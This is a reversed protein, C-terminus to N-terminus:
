PSEGIRWGKETKIFPLGDPYSTHEKGEEDVWVITCSMNLAPAHGPRPTGTSILRVQRAAGGVVDKMLVNMDKDKLMIATAPTLVAELAKRDRKELAKYFAEALPRLERSLLIGEIERDTFQQALYQRTSALVSKTTDDTADKEMGAFLDDWQKRTKALSEGTPEKQSVLDLGVMTVAVKVLQMGALTRMSLTDRGDKAAALSETVATKAAALARGPDVPITLRRRNEPDDQPMAFTVLYQAAGLRLTMSPAYQAYAELLDALLPGDQLGAAKCQRYVIHMLLDGMLSTVHCVQQETLMPLTASPKGKLLSEPVASGHKKLVGALASVFGEGGPAEVTAVQQLTPLLTTALEVPKPTPPLPVYKPNVEMGAPMNPIPTAYCFEPRPETWTVGLTQQLWNEIDIYWQDTVPREVPRWFLKNEPYVMSLADVFDVRISKHMVNRGVFIAPNRMERALAMVCSADGIYGLWRAAKEKEHVDKAEHFARVFKASLAADGLKALAAEVYEPNEKLRERLLAKAEEAGTKGLLWRDDRGVELLRAAHIRLYSDPVRDRLLTIALRRVNEDKGSAAAEVLLATVGSSFVWPNPGGDDGGTRYRQGITLARWLVGSQAKAYLKPFMGLLERAVDERGALEPEQGGGSDGYSAGVVRGALTSAPIKTEAATKSGTPSTAPEDAFTVTAVSLIFALMTVSRRLSSFM